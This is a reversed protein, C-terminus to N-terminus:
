AWKVQWRPVMTTFCSRPSSRFYSIDRIDVGPVSLLYRCIGAILMILIFIVAGSMGAAIKTWSFFRLLIFLFFIAPLFLPLSFWNLFPGAPVGALFAIARPM